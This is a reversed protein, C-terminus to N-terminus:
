PIALPVSKTPGRREELAVRLRAEDLATIIERRRAKTIAQEILGHELGAAIGQTIAIAPVVVPVGDVFDVDRTRLDYTTVKFRQTDRRRVRRGLPVIVDISRPNMDAIEWLSLAAEGGVAAGHGAWLVAEHFEDNATVPIATLRYLGRHRQEARNTQALRRLYVQAIGQRDVDATTLFGHQSAAVEILRDYTKLPYEM